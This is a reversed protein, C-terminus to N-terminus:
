VSRCYRGYQGGRRQRSLPHHIYESEMPRILHGSGPQPEEGGLNVVEQNDTYTRGGVADSATNWNQFLYGIRTFANPTLPFKQDYEVAQPLMEGQGGNPHYNVTYPNAIWKAYLKQGDAPIRDTEQVEHAYMPDYFWRVTEYGQKPNQEYFVNAEITVGPINPMTLENLQNNAAM